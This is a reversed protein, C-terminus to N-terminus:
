ELYPRTLAEDHPNGTPAPCLIVHLMLWPAAMLDATAGNSFFIRFRAMEAGTLMLQGKVVGSAFLQGHVCLPDAM